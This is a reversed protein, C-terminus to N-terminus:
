VKLDFYGNIRNEFDSDISNNSSYEISSKLKDSSCSLYISRDNIDIGTIISVPICKKSPFISNDLICIVYRIVWNNDSIILDDLRGGIGDICQITSGTLVTCLALHEKEDGVFDRNPINSKHFKFPWFSQHQKQDSDFLKGFSDSLPPYDWYYKIFYYDHIKKENERSVPLKQEIFDSKAIKNFPEKLVITNLLITNVTVPSILYDTHKFLDGFNLYLYRVAWNSQDFVIDFLKGTYNDSTDVKFHYLHKWNWLM